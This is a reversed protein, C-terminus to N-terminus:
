VWFPYNDPQTNLPLPRSKSPWSKLRRRGKRKTNTGTKCVARVMSSMAWPASPPGSDDEIKDLLRVIDFRRIDDIQRAGLKPYVLRAFTRQRDSATPACTAGPL